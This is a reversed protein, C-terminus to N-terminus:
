NGLPRIVVAGQPTGGAAVRDLASGADDLGVVEAVPLTLQGEALLRVLAGLQEADPRVYLSSVAIGREEAPPDSTITVLRGGDAVVGMATAAGDRAANVVGDFGAGGALERAHDPWGPDTRDLVERAGLGRVRDRSSAGATAVVDVGRLAALQVVLGATLGGAGHVLLTMGPQAALAESLVQEATLAPVPFAGAAEWPVAEPKSSVATASAVLREAWAGQHRLPLPHALVGDGPALGTVGEATALVVGAVEVGLAMPPETGVDWGGTRVIEDWNGVGAARVEILVEDGALAPPEELELVEIPGGIETVGAARM